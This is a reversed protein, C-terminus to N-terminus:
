QVVIASEGAENGANLSTESLLHTQWVDMCVGRHPVNWMRKANCVPVKQVADLLEQSHGHPHCTVQKGAPRRFLATFM